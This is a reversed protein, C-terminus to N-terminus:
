STGSGELVTVARRNVSWCFENSCTEAPREKGYTVTELRGGSVGRSILYDRVAVARRVGLALNYDRTGREDAHGEITANFQQNTVLWEAQADLTALADDNLTSQDVAFFVRDGTLTQFYAISGPDSASGTRSYQGDSGAGAGPGAGQQDGCGALAAALVVFSIIRIM